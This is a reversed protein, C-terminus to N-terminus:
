FLRIVSIVILVLCMVGIAMVGLLYGSNEM